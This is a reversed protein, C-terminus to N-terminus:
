NTEYMCIKPCTFTCKRINSANIFSLKSEDSGKIQSWTLLTGTGNKEM